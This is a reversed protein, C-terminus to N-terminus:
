SVLTRAVEALRALVLGGGITRLFLPMPLRAHEGKKKDLSVDRVARGRSATSGLFEQRLFLDRPSNESLTGCRVAKYM